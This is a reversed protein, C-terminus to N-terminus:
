IEAAAACFRAFRTADTAFPTEPPDDCYIRPAGTVADLAELQHDHLILQRVGADSSAGEVQHLIADHRGQGFRYDCAGLVSTKVGRHLFGYSPVMVSVRCGLAALAPPVDRIVDGVGGVKGGPLAANESAIMLINLAPSM